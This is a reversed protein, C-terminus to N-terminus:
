LLEGGRWHGVGLGAAKLEKELRPPPDTMAVVVGRLKPFAEFMQAPLNGVAAGNYAVTSVKHKVAVAMARLTHDVLFAKTVEAPEQLMPHCHVSAVAAQGTERSVSTIWRPREDKAHRYYHLAVPWKRWVPIILGYRTECDFKLLGGETYFGAPWEDSDGVIKRLESCVVLSAVHSPVSRAGYRLSFDPLWGFLKQLQRADRVDLSLCQELFVDLVRATRLDRASYAPPEHKVLTLQPRAGDPLSSLAAVM